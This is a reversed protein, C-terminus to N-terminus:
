PAGTGDVLADLIAAARPAGAGDSWRKWGEGGRREAADLLGPWRQPAPWPSVVEALGAHRLRAGTAHQEDFPREQPLVVAPRRAAAVEALANQGAHTLVVDARHLAAWVDEVWGLHTLNPPDAPDPRAPGAVEWIRDPTAAAAARLQGASVDLGGSGWLALVRRGPAARVPVPLADFRSLASLHDAKAAWGDLPFEAPWPALVREALDYATRHPRDTRTGPQAMVVVPIGHLRALVAVEVSVDVVVLRVGGGALVRSIAAARARVGVHHRPAWHLTGGATVDRPRGAGGADDPLVTWTGAWGPPAPRSSLGTVPTQLHAAITAARHLHGSGHHHVYWAIM